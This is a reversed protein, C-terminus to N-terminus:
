EKECHPHKCKKHRCKYAIWFIPLLCCIVHYKFGYLIVMVLWGMKLNLWGFHIHKLLFHEFIETILFSIVAVSVFKLLQGLRFLDKSSHKETNM